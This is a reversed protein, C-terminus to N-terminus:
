RGVARRGRRRPRRRRCLARGTAVDTGVFGIFAGARAAAPGERPRGRARGPNCGTFRLVGGGAGFRRRGPAHPLDGAAYTMATPAKRVVPRPPTERAVHRGHRTRLRGHTVVTPWFAGCQGAVACRPLGHAEGIEEAAHQQPEAWPWVSRVAWPQPRRRRAATSTAACPIRRGRRSSRCGRPSGLGRRLGAAHRRRRRPRPTASLPPAPCRLLADAKRRAGSPFTSRTPGGVRWSRRRRRGPSGTLAQRARWAVGGPAIAVAHEGAFLEDLSSSKM